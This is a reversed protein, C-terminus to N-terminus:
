RTCKSNYFDRVRTNFEIFVKEVDRVIDKPLSEGNPLDYRDKAFFSKDDEM